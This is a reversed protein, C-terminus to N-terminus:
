HVEALSPDYDWSKGPYPHEPIADLQGDEVLGELTHPYANHTAHYVDLANILINRARIVEDELLTTNYARGEDGLFFEGGLGDEPLYPILGAELLDELSSPYQGKEQYYLRSQRNLIETIKKLEIEELKRKGLESLFSDHSAAMEVWMDQEVELLNFEDQLKATLNVIGGPAHGTSTALSLLQTAMYRSNEEERKNLLYVMAAEYPLSWAHPNVKVGEYALNLSADPDARLAALFMVGFRYVDVFYPDLRTATILMHELWKFVRKGRHEHATYQICHLWILDAIVTNLGATFYSLLKENPLYLLEENDRDKRKGDALQLFITATGFCLSLVLLFSIIRIPRSM